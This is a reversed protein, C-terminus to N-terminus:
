GIFYVLSKVLKCVGDGSVRGPLQGPPSCCQRLPSASHSLKLKAIVLEIVDNIGIHVLRKGNIFISRYRGGEANVARRHEDCSWM